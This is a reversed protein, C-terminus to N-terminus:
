SVSTLAHVADIGCRDGHQVAWHAIQISERHREWNNALNKISGFIVSPSKIGRPWGRENVLTKAALLLRASSSYIRQLDLPHFTFRVETKPKDSSSNDAANKYQEICLDLIEQLASRAKAKPGCKLLQYLTVGPVKAQICFFVDQGDLQEVGSIAPSIKGAFRHLHAANRNPATAEEDLIARKTAVKLVLKAPQGGNTGTLELLYSGSFGSTLTQAVCDHWGVTVKGILEQLVESGLAAQALRMGLTDRIDVATATSNVTGARKCRADEITKYLLKQLNEGRKMDHQGKDIVDDFVHDQIEHRELWKAHSTVAIMIADKRQLRVTKCCDIGISPDDEGELALDMLIILEENKPLKNILKRADKWTRCPRDLEPCVTTTPPPYLEELNLVLQEHSNGINEIVCIIM